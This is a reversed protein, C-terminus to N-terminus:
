AFGRAADGALLRAVLEPKQFHVLRGADPVIVVACGPWAAEWRPLADAANYLPDQAGCLITIARGDEVGPVPEFPETTAVARFGAGGQLASHQTARVYAAMVEPDRLVAMDAESGELAKITLREVISASANRSLYMALRGTLWPQAYVMSKIAGIMGSRRRDAGPPPEPNIAVARIIREPWSAAFRALVMAAGRALICAREIGLTDLIDALDRASQALYDGAVMGSLGFGPRDIAIPRLGGSQLARIFCQPNHRSTTATHLILVPLGGRPGHDVLAIRGERGIRPILRLPEPAPAGDEMSTAMAVRALISVEHVTISLAAVSAVRLAAFVTKLESKVVHESVGAADAAERRTGGDAVLMAIEAQRRSIAFLQGLARALAERTAPEGAQLRLCLGVLEGQRRAGAKRMAAKTSTRATEYEVGAQRAASRLDGTRVLGGVVRAELGTLRLARAFASRTPDIETLPVCVLVAFQGALRARVMDRMPWDVTQAAPAVAAIKTRGDSACLLAIRIGSAGPLRDLQAGVGPLGWQGFRPDAFLIAGEADCVASAFGDPNLFAASGETGDDAGPAGPGIMAVLEEPLGAGTASLPVAAGSM